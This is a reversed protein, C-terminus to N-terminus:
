QESACEACCGNDGVGGGANMKHRKSTLHKRYNVQLMELDCIDCVVRELKRREYCKDESAKVAETHEKRYARHYTNYKERNVERYRQHYERRALKAAEKDIVAPEM